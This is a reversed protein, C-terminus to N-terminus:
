FIRQSLGTRKVEAQCFGHQENEFWPAKNNGYYVRWMKVPQKQQRFHGIAIRTLHPQSNM